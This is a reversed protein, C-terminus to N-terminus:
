EMKLTSADFVYLPYSQFGTINKKFVRPASLDCLFVSAADESLIQQLRKYAATRENEDAMRLTKNYLADYEANKYNIFNHPASSEYRFLYSRPSLTAGDIGIVTAQYARKTYVTELWSAWDLQRIVARVGIESLQNVMVQAADIHPQYASPVSIELPFGAGYGAKELLARAKVPDKAYLNDNESNYAYSLAPAVPTSARKAHGNHVLKIIENADVVYSIAKRVDANSLPTYTNNLCLIQPANITEYIINFDDEPLQLVSTNDVTGAELSGVRLDLMISNYDAKIKFTLRDILPLEKKWYKDHKKLVLEYQPTFSVFQFPGTGIPHENQKEYGAPILAYTLYYYFEPDGESLTIVVTSSDVAEVGAITDMGNAKKEAARLLSYRADEADVQKGNHFFLAPKLKVTWTLFDASASYSAAAAPILRGDPSAKLLGEFLNFFVFRSDASSAEYPDLRDPETPIGYHIVKENPARLARACGVTLAVFVAAFLVLTQKMNM